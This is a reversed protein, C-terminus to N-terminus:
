RISSNKNHSPPTIMSKRDTCFFYDRSLINGLYENLKYLGLNFNVYNIKTFINITM